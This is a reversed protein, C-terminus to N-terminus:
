EAARVAGLSRGILQYCSTFDAQDDAPIDPDRTQIGADRDVSDARV